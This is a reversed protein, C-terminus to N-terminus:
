CDHDNAVARPAASKKGRIDFPQCKRVPLKFITKAFPIRIRDTNVFLQFGILSDINFDNLGGDRRATVRLPKQSLQDAAVARIHNLKRSALFKLVLIKQRKGFIQRFLVRVVAPSRKLPHRPAISKCIVHRASEARSIGFIEANGSQHARGPHIDIDIKVPSCGSTRFQRFSEAFPQIGAFFDTRVAVPDAFRQNWDADASEGLPGDTLDAVMEVVEDIRIVVIKKGIIFVSDSIRFKDALECVAVLAHVEVTKKSRRTQRHFDPFIECFTKRGNIQLLRFEKERGSRDGEENVASVVGKGHDVIRLELNIHNRKRREASTEFPLIQSPHRFDAAADASAEANRFVCLIDIKCDVEQLEDSGIFNGLQRHDTVAFPARRQFADIVALRETRLNGGHTMTRALRIHGRRLDLFRDSKQLFATRVFAGAMGSNRHQGMDAPPRFFIHEKDQFIQDDILRLIRFLLEPIRKEALPILNGIVQIFGNNGFFASQM